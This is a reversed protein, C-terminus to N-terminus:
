SSRAKDGSMLMSKWLYPLRGAGKFQLNSFGAETLLTGLTKRSWNKIHGADWLPDIHQDFKGCLAIALNKFYGNYPTSCVFRGGPRTASYCGRVFARPDYLHEVVETSMVLDFPECGLRQIVEDDAKMVEFRGAPYARRAIEIGDESLDIGVVDCGARVFEGALAGNGCGVDLVRSSPKLPGCLALIQPLLYSHTCLPEADYYKYEIQHPM